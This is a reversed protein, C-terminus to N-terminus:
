AYPGSRDDHRLMAWVVKGGDASGAGTDNKTPYWGWNKCLSDVLVLGRGSEVDDMPTGKVPVGEGADWVEILVRQRDSSVMLRVTGLAAIREYSLATPDREYLRWEVEDLGGASAKAANTVLESVVLVAIQGVEAPLGWQRLASQTHQRAWFAASPLAALTLSSHVSWGGM